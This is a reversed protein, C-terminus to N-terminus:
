VRESAASSTPILFIRLAIQSLLPYGMHGFQSWYEKAKMGQYESKEELGMVAFANNYNAYEKVCNLQDTTNSFFAMTYTKFQRAADRRDNSSMSANSYM